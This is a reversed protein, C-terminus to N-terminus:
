AGRTLQVLILIGMCAPSRVTFAFLAVSMPNALMIQTGVAWIFWGLYGPHRVYRYIGTTVLMHGDRRRTAINHTFCQKATLQGAKRVAEGLIVCVL